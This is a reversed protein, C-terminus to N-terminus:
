EFTLLTYVCRSPQPISTSPGATPGHVWYSPLLPKSNLFSLSGSATTYSQLDMAQSMSFPEQRGREGGGKSSIWENPSGKSESSSSLFTYVHPSPLFVHSSPQPISTSPGATPGHVWYSPLLTKSDLLSLSGSATTYSKLAMAQSMSSSEISSDTM